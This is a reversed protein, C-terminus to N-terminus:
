YPIVYPKAPPPPALFIVPRPAGFVYIRGQGYLKM